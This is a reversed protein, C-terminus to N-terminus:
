TTEAFQALRRRALLFSVPFYLLSAVIPAVLSETRLFTVALGLGVIAEFLFGNALIRSPRGALHTIAFVVATLAATAPASWGIEQFDVICLARWIEEAVAGLIFIAMWLAISGNSFYGNVPSFLRGAFVLALGITLGTVATAAIHTSASRLLNGVLSGNTAFLLLLLVIFRFLILRRGVIEMRARKEDSLAIYENNVGRRPWARVWDGIALVVVPYSMLIAFCRETNM